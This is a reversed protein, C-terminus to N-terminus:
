RRTQRVSFRVRHVRSAHQALPLMMRRHPELCFFRRWEGPAFPPRGEGPNWLSWTDATDCSVTIELGRTPDGLVHPRGDAAFKMTSYDPNPVTKADLTAQPADTISFYPHFGFASEFPADGTNTETLTIELSDPSPMSMEACLRFDHPWIAKTELTSEVAFSLANCPLTPPEDSVRKWPMYRVIGHSPYGARGAFWPWCIPVGGHVEEGWPRDAAMFFVEEGGLAAPRWGTVQAGVNGVMVTGYETRLEVGTELTRKGFDVTVVTGDAFRTEQVSRDPSLARHSVMESFGTRRAIPGVRKWSALFEEKRERWQRYDFVYMPATGYLANFLDRKWWYYVPSNSYDYWYWHSAVCDHYVLEFLPIRYRENLAYREMREVETASLAAPISGDDRFRERRWYGVRGHPMRACTPSMMGEFYDCFPVFPDMGQEAGVVIGFKECLMKLLDVKARRSVRRTMPHAPNYCEEWGIASVVDLFRATFPIRSLEEGALRELRAIAPIDCQAACYHKKGDKGTVGWARRWANSDPRDWAIDDPWASTNNCIESKPPNERGLADLLDPYYVDRCVDYRGVLTDPMAAITPVDEPQPCASWLIRDIGAERMEEAVAAHSPDGGGPFYWVNAAGPLREVLPREAAKERFTKVLGQEQAYDRYRKAMAVYGGKDFFVFRVRRPYGPSGCEPMWLPAVAGLRKGEQDPFCRLKADEPTELIAMYGCEDREDVVGFFPMSMGGRWVQIESDKVLDCEVFPIRFGESFPVVLADGPNPAIPAPYVAGEAPLDAFDVEVVLEAGSLFFRPPAGAATQFGPTEALVLSLPAPKANSTSGPRNVHDEAVFGIDHSADRETEPNQRGRPEKWEGLDTGNAYCAWWERGSRKDRVSFEGTTPDARVVLAESELTQM